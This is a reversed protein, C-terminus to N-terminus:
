STKQNLGFPIDKQAKNTPHTLAPERGPAPAPSLKPTHRPPALGVPCPQKRHNHTNNDIPKWFTERYM